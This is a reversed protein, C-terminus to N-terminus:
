REREETKTEARYRGRDTKIKRVSQEKIRVM